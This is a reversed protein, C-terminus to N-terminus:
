FMLRLVMDSIDKNDQAPAKRVLAMFKQVISEKCREVLRTCLQSGLEKM